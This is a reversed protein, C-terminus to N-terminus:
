KPLELDEDFRSVGTRQKKARVPWRQSGVIARGKDTITVAGEMPAKGSGGAERDQLEFETAVLSDINYDVLGIRALAMARRSLVETLELVQAWAQPDQEAKLRNAFAEERDLLEKKSKYMEETIEGRQLSVLAQKREELFDRPADSYGLNAARTPNNGIGQGEIGLIRKALAMLILVCSQYSYTFVQAKEDDMRCGAAERLIYKEMDRLSIEVKKTEVPM